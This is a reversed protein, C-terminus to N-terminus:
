SHKAEGAHAHHIVPFNIVIARYVLMLLSILGITVAFEGVAPFYHETVYPPKYAVLFVNIRNLAVGLVIALAAVFLWRPSNRVRASLLMLFPVILGGIIELGFMFSTWSYDLSKWSERIFMDGMKYCLYVGLIPPIYKALPSLVHMEPKLGFSWSAYLSEFIVM